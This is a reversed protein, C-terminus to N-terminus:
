EGVEVVSVVVDRNLDFGSIAVRFESDTVTLAMRNGAGNLSVGSHEISLATKEGFEFDNRDWRKFANGRTVEYACRVMLKMPLSDRSLAPGSTIVFGGKRSGVHFRRPKPDGANVVPKRVLRNQPGRPTGSAKRINLLELLADPDTIGSSNELAANLDRLARRVQTLTPGPTRWRRVLKEARGNWATHAPNEADRLFAAAPGDAVVLAGFTTPSRFSNAENPVTIANRVFLTAPQVGADAVRLFLDLFGTENPGNKPKVAIPARVHILEGKAHATRLADLTGPDFAAAFGDTTWAEAAVVPRNAERAGHLGRIFAIQAPGLGGATHTAILEDVTADSIETDGVHVILRGTLIPFFYHEIVLPILRDPTLESRPFPIALSLGPETTRKFGTATRFAEVTGADNVPIPFGDASFSAVFGHPVYEIDNLKHTSLISQGMLWGSGSDGDRVTLGFVTYIQSSFPFVLKGLGWSGGSSGSKHSRGIRRWFDSFHNNDKTDVSGTLGITGFDEITLFSPNEFDLITEDVAVAKLHRSLSKFLDRLLPPAVAKHFGVRVTVPGHNEPARADNTNQIAERVLTAPLPVRDTDFQDKQTLEQEVDSPRTEAFRLALLFPGRGTAYYWRRYEGQSGESTVM